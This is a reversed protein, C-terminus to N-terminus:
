IDPIKLKPPLPFKEEVIRHNNWYFGIAQRHIILDRRAGEAKIRLANVTKAAIIRDELNGECKIQPNSIRKYDEYAHTMLTFYYGCKDGTKGLAVAMEEQLEEELKAISDEVNFAGERKIKEIHVGSPSHEVGGKVRHALNTWATTSKTPPRALYEFFKCSIRISNRM